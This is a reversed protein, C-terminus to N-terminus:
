LPGPSQSRKKWWWDWQQEEERPQALQLGRTLFSSFSIPSPRQKVHRQQQERLRLPSSQSEERVGCSSVELPQPPKMEEVQPLRPPPSLPLNLRAERQEVVARELGM